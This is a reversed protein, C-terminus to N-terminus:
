FRAKYRSIFAGFRATLAEDEPSNEASVLRKRCIEAAAISIGCLRSIEDARSVGCKRLVCVPALFDAAFRDAARENETNNHQQSLHGLVCHAIEHAITFRRRRECCSNENVAIVFRGDEIYSFGFRSKSYLERVSIEYIETMTKYSVLKIGLRKATEEPSIPLSFIGAKEYIENITM